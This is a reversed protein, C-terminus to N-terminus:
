RRFVFPFVQSQFGCNTPFEKRSNKPIDGKNSLFRGPVTDNIKSITKASLVVFYCITQTTTIFGDRKRYTGCLVNKGGKPSRKYINEAYAM